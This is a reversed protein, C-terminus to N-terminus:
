GSEEIFRRLLVGALHRRYERTSRIDDIPSIDRQLAATARAVVTANPIQHLLTAETRSARVPTPAVSGLAFRVVEICGTRSRRILGAAVVKSIAQARRTGIKRFWHRAGRIPALPIRVATLLEDPRRVTRRYGTYFGGFPVERTERVSRLILTAELVALAPLSDGAPSANVINGGITGRNQIQIAGIEAAAAELSPARRRVRASHRIATWSTLAGIELSGRHLRIGRLERLGWLNLFRRDRLTGANLHVMLDTGGAFPVPAPAGNRPVLLRLADRLDRPQLM